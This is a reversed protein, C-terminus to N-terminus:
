GVTKWFEDTGLWCEAEEVCDALNTLEPVSPPFIPDILQWNRDGPALTIFSKTRDNRLLVMM